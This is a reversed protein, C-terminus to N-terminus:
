RRAVPPRPWQTGSAAAALVDGLRLWANPGTHAVPSEAFRQWAQEDDGLAAAVLALVAPHTGRYRPGGVSLATRAPLALVTEPACDPLALVHRAWSERDAPNGGLRGRLDRTLTHLALEPDSHRALVDAFSPEGPLGGRRAFSLLAKEVLQDDGAHRELYGALVGPEADTLDRVTVEAPDGLAARRAAASRPPPDAVIRTIADLLATFQQHDGRDLYSRPRPAERRADGIVRRVAARTGETVEPLHVLMAHVWRLDAARDTGFLKRPRWTRLAQEATLAFQGALEALQDPPTRWAYPAGYSPRAEAPDLIFRWRRDAAHAVWSTASRLGAEHHYRSGDELSYEVSERSSEDLAALEAAYRERAAEKSVGDTVDGLIRATLLAGDFRELDALALQRLLAPEVLWPLRGLLQERVVHNSDTGETDAVLRAHRDPHRALVAGWMRTWADYAARFRRYSTEPDGDDEAAAPHDPLLAVAAGFVTDGLRGSALVTQAPTPKELMEPAFVPREPVRRRLEAAVATCLGAPRDATGLAGLQRDSCGGLADAVLEAPCDPHTLALVAPEIRARALHDPEDERLGEAVAATLMWSPASERFPGRLLAELLQGIEREEPRERVQRATMLAAASGPEAGAAVATLFEVPLRDGSSSM